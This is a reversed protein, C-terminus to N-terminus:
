RKMIHSYVATESSGANNTAVGKFYYKTGSRLGTLSAKYYDYSKNAYQYYRCVKTKSLNDKSTGYYLVVSPSGDNSVRFVVELDTTTAASSVKKITPKSLAQEMDEPFSDEGGEGKSCATMFYLMALIVILFYKNTKM